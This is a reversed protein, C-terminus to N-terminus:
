GLSAVPRKLMAECRRWFGIKETEHELSVLEWGKDGLRALAQGIAVIANGPTVKVGTNFRELRGAHDPAHYVVHAVYEGATDELVVSCYEWQEM